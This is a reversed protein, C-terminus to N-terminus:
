ERGTESPSLIRPGAIPTHTRDGARPQRRQAGRGLPCSGPERLHSAELFQAADFAGNL